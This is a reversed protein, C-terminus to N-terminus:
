VSSGGTRNGDSEDGGKRNNNIREAISKFVTMCHRTKEKKKADDMNEGKSFLDYPKTAYPAPKPNKVFSRFMPASELLAEYIYRGQLWAQWNHYEADRREKDRYYKVLTCDGDWFDELSMGLHLYHGCEKEFISSASPSDHGGAEPELSKNNPTGVILRDDGM